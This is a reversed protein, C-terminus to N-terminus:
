SSLGLMANARMEKPVSKIFREQRSANMAKLRAAIQSPQIAIRAEPNKRNWEMLDAMAEKVKAPNKEHVGEAWKDAIEGEIKRALNVNQQIENIKESERAVVNPQFGFVKSVADVSDTEIIKRGRTDSYYGDDLTKMGKLANQVALPLSVRAFGGVDGQRLAEVGSFASKVFGGMPGVFELVDRSKDTESVKFMATGPILNQVGLRRSMDIPSGPLGSIGKRFFDGGVEGLSETAMQRLWAKSNTAYGLMQGITDIVDQIDEAFPWGEAGAGLFMIAMALAFAKKDQKYLRSLFEVYGISFQKFTFVTAGVPGRAWNPRNGKNYIGQTDEVATQAFAFPDAEGNSRAMNFAAIFTIQRNFSEALSFFSGWARLGKRVLINRSLGDRNTEAFLQHIEHPETIGEKEALKLAQRLQPDYSRSAYQSMAKRLAAGAKAAGGFQALYPATMTIPQTMNTLASAVSGGMFHVFLYGRLPVAEEQPNQLYDVLKAAEGKVDGKHKPIDMVAQKMDGFHYNKAALRGNSTVFGALVRQTDKSYGAVGGRHILRKMASRNNQTLRLYDQFIASEDAGVAEAFVELSSPDIGNFLKWSETDMIGQTVSAEPFTEQLERAARNAERQTEYMGFFKRDKEGTGPDTEVVDVSYQGFRMLPAYGQAKLQHIRGAKKMVDDAVQEVVGASEELKEAKADDGTARAQRAADIREQVTSLLAEHVLNRASDLSDASKAQVIVDTDVHAKALRAIESVGLDDLSKNIGSRAERYLSVQKDTLKFRNRLEADSFVVNELTGEFVPASIAEADARKVGKRFIDMFSGLKPLLNPAEDAADMAFRSTDLLYKQGIDFVRKFDKDVTAKHYQTSVSKHLWNFKADSRFLDALQQSAQETLNYRISQNNASAQLQMNERMVGVGIELAASLANENGAEIGLIGRVVRVFWHWASKLGTSGVPASVKKLAQQFKPNTFAESVFEEVNAMGYQGKLKGSKQVHEFLKKM